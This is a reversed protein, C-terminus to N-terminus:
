GGFISADVRYVRERSQGVRRSVVEDELDSEDRTVTDTCLDCVRHLLNELVDVSGDFPLLIVHRAHGRRTLLEELLSHLAQLAVADAELTLVDLIGWEGGRMM